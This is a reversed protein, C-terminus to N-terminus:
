QAISSCNDLRKAAPATQQRHHQRISRTNWDIGRNSRLEEVFRNIRVIAFPFVVKIARGLSAFPNIFVDFLHNQIISLSSTLRMAVSQLIKRMTEFKAFANALVNTV